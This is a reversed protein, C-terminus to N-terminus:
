MVVDAVVLSSVGTIQMSFDASSDADNNGYLIHALQDFYLEGVQTFTGLFAGGVRLVSFASNGALATNADISSVDIKDGQTHNFDTITDRTTSLTGTDTELIFKFVDAGLGGTLRDAGAGGNLVNAAGNGILVNNLGNGTGNIAATGSLTLNEVNGGLTYSISSSVTDIETALTSTETVIDGANDVIYLDNGLGGTLRDAGAGGNLVNAAGNGTLTDNNSGGTINEILSLKDVGAGGTNQWDSLSLNVNVAKTFSAYSVTDVDSGGNIEDDGSGSVLTDNGSGGFLRNDGAKTSISQEVSVFTHANDTAIVKAIVSNDSLDLGSVTSTFRLGLPTSVLQSPQITTLLTGNRYLEVRAIDSLQVSPAILGATLSATDNVRIASNNVTNDDVLDLAPLDSSAGLGIARISANIGSPNILTQVQTSYSGGENPQGDSIFFVYNLGARNNFFSVAEDLAVTYNTGGGLNLSRLSDIIDLRGNNNADTSMGNNFTTTASSSFPILTIQSSSFGTQMLSNTLSEFSAIAADLITNSYGDGNLDGVTTGQFVSQMSGSVDIVYAINVNGSQGGSRSLLGDVVASGTDTFDPATLSISLNLGSSPVIVQNSVTSTDSQAGSASTSYLIDNGDGGNLLDDGIGGQLIDNGSGGNLSDDGKGGLLSDNGDQGYIVDDGGLGQILEHDATGQFFDDKQTLNVLLPDDNVITGTASNAAQNVAGGVANDIVVSFTEDSERIADGAIQLTVVQTQQNAAFNIIGSPLVGGVFDSGAAQHLGSGSITYHVSGAQSLNGSRTVTFTFSGNHGNGEDQVLGTSSTIAFNSVPPTYSFNALQQLEAASMGAFIDQAGSSLYAAVTQAEARTAAQVGFHMIIKTEGPALHLLFSYSIDDDGNVGYVATPALGNHGGFVQAVAPDGGNDTSDDTVLWHDATTFSGDGSSTAIISTSSDSGLNGRIVLNYTTAVSGTNTVIELFRAYGVTGSDPVYVKRTVDIDGSANSAMVVERNSDEYTQTTSSFGDLVFATDFADNSGDNISGNAQIDWIYNRIDTLTAM